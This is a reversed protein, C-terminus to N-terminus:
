GYIPLARGPVSPIDLGTLERARGGSSATAGSVNPMNQIWGTTEWTLMGIQVPQVKGDGGHQMAAGGLSSNWLGWWEQGSVHRKGGRGFPTIEWVVAGPGFAGAGGAPVWQDGNEDTFAPFDEKNAVFWRLDDEQSTTPEPLPTGTGVWTALPAHTFNEDVTCGISAINNDSIAKVHQKVTMGDFTGSGGWVWIPWEQRYGHAITPWWPQSWLHQVYATMGYAGGWFGVLLGEDVIDHHWADLTPWESTPAWYDVASFITPVKSWDMGWQDATARSSNIVVLGEGKGRRARDAQREWNPIVAGGNDHVARVSNVGAGFDGGQYLSVDADLAAARGACGPDNFGAADYYIRGIPRVDIIM